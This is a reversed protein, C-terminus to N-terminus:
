VPSFRVPDFDFEWIGVQGDFHPTVGEFQARGSSRERAQGLGLGAGFFQAPLFPPRWLGRVGIDWWSKPQAVPGLGIPILAHAQVSWRPTVSVEINPDLGIMGASQNPTSKGFMVSGELGAYVLRAGRLKAGQGEGAASGPEQTGTSAPAGASPAAVPQAA